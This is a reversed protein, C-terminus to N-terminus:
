FGMNTVSIVPKSQNQTYTMQQQRRILNCEYFKM